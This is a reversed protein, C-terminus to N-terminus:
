SWVPVFMLWQEPRRRIVDELPALVLRAAKRIDAELDDSPRVDLPECIRMIYGHQPDWECWMVLLLSHTRLALRIHGLPLAAPRGFFEITEKQRPIPRDVGTMVMGGDELRRFATRLAARSIPTVECLPTSRLRNMMRFGASPDTLSLLQYAVGLSAIFRLGLDFNSVHGGASVIGRGSSLSAQLHGASESDMAVPIHADPLTARFLDYYTKGAHVLVQRVAEKLAPDSPELGRVVAQNNLIARYFEGRFATVGAAFLRSLRESTAPSTRRSLFM